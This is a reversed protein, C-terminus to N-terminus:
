GTREKRLTGRRTGRGKAARILKKARHLAGVLRAPRAGGGEIEWAKGERPMAQAIEENAEMRGFRELANRRCREVDMGVRAPDRLYEELKSENELVIGTGTRRIEDAVNGSEPPALIMAGAQLSEYLAYCYTEPWISWHAVADIGAGRLAETMAGRGDRVFSVDVPKVHGPCDKRPKGFHYFEYPAGSAALAGSARAFADWGKATTPLGVFGIRLKRGAAGARAETKSGAPLWHPVVKAEDMWEPYTGGFVRGAAASPLLVELRGRLGEVFHRMAPVHAPDRSACGACKEESPAAPGCYARGNRLLQNHACVWSYDHVFLRVRATTARLFDALAELSYEQLHHLQVELPQKGGVEPGALLRAFEGARWFGKWEGDAIAGWYGSLWADLRRNRRTRFPIAVVSSIGRAELIATEESLYKELGSAADRYDDRAFALVYRGHKTWRGAPEAARM